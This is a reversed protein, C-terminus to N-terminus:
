AARGSQKVGCARAWDGYARGSEGPGYSQVLAAGVTLEYRSGTRTRHLAVRAGTPSTGQIALTWMTTDRLM